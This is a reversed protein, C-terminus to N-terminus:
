RWALCNLRRIMSSRLFKLNLSLDFYIFLESNWNARPTWKLRGTGMVQPVSHVTHIGGVCYVSLNNKKFLLLFFAQQAPGPAAGLSPFSFEMGSNTGEQKLEERQEPRGGKWQLAM